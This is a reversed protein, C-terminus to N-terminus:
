FMRSFGRAQRAAISQKPVHVPKPQMDFPIGLLMQQAMGRTQGGFPTQKPGFRDVVAQVAPSVETRGDPMQQGISDFSGVTVISAYRDHFEYAEHGKLRLAETLKHAKETAEVLQSKVNKRGTEIASIEQQDIVMRGRFTAVQVTYKGPCDLLSHEVGRNAEVVLPDIGQPVFFDKGLTPNPAIMAHGMPGKKKKKNGPALVRQQALRWAALTRSTSRNGNIELSEPRFYKLKQLTEQAQPDDVSSYDGVLVAVEDFEGGRQYRMKLPDGFRDLGIGYTEKGLDFSKDYTYAELKYRKRLELVLERAQGAAREGSFSCAMITWPGNEETLAYSKEPDAEVRKLTLLKDWPAADATGSWWGALVIAALLLWRGYTGSM